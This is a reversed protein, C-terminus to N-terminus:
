KPSELYGLMSSCDGTAHFQKGSPIWVDCWNWCQEFSCPINDAGICKAVITWVAKATSCQFFLHSLNEAKDCFYCTPDGTWKRKVMNDKTLVANNLMLWLFIKIKAPIASKWIRKHYIGSDNITMTDYCSKVSFRGSKGFKWSIDDNADTFIVKKFDEMISIWDDRLKDVLWRSFTVVQINQRVEYVKLNQHM